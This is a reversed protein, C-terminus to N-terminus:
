QCSLQDLRSKLGELFQRLETSKSGCLDIPQECGNRTEGLRVDELGLEKLTGYPMQYIMTCIADQAVPAPTCIEADLLIADVQARDAATLCHRQGTQEGRTNKVQVVGSNLDVDLLRSRSYDPVELTSFQSAELKEYTVPGMSDASGVPAKGCNQFLFISALIAVSSVTRAVLSPRLKM